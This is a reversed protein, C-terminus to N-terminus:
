QNSQNLHNMLAPCAQFEKPSFYLSLRDFRLYILLARFFFFEIQLAFNRVRSVYPSVFFILSANTLYHLLQCDDIGSIDVVVLVVFVKEEFSCRFITEHEGFVWNQNRQPHNHRYRDDGFLVISFWDELSLM